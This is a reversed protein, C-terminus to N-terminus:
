CTVAFQVDADVPVGTAANGTDLDFWLDGNDTVDWTRVFALVNGVTDNQDNEYQDPTAQIVPDKTGAASCGSVVVTYVGYSPTSVSVINGSSYALSPIMPNTGSAGPLLQGWARLQEGNSSIATTAEPLTFNLIANSSSGSNTVSATTATTSTTVTGVQVSAAQGAAGIAGRAGTRGRPGQRSWSLGTTGKPCHKRVTLVSTRNNVCGHVTNSRSAAIAYGGGALLAGIVAGILLQSLNVTIKM